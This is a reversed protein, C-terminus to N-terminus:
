GRIMDVFEAADFVVGVGFIIGGARKWDIQGFWWGMGLLMVALIALSRAVRSNIYEIIKDIAEAVGASAADPVALAFAVHAVLALVCIVALRQSKSHPMPPPISQPM